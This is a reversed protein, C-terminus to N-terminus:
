LKKWSNKKKWNWRKDKKEEKGTDLIYNIGTAWNQQQTM